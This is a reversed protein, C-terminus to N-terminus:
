KASALRLVPPPQWAGTSIAQDPCYMRLVLYFTAAPAPLWHEQSGPEAHQIRLTLSGDAAPKVGPTRDGISYRQIPNPTFLGDEGQYMSISWFANVPPLAGPPFHVEYAQQGNLPQGEQDARCLMYVAEEPAVGGTYWKAYGARWLYDLGMIGSRPSWRWGNVLEGASNAKADMVHQAFQWGLRLGSLQTESLRDPHFQTGNDSFGISSLADVYVADQIPKPPVWRNTRALKAFFKLADDLGETKAPVTREASWATDPEDFNALGFRSLPGLHIGDQVAHAAALDDPGDVGVRGWIVFANIPCRVLQVGQPLVGDWDPGALAYHGSERGTKRSGVYDFTDGFADWLHMVYYRNAEVKPVSLILPERRVDCFGQIFLTDNNPTAIQKYEPGRLHRMRSLQNVLSQPNGIKAEADPDTRGLMLDEFLVAPFFAEAKPGALTGLEPPAVRIDKSM